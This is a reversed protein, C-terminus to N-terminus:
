NEGTQAAGCERLMESYYRNEIKEEGIGCRAFLSLIKERGASVATEDNFGSLIEIELFDGLPPVTCLEIHADEFHWGVVSKRKELFVRLGLDSFFAEVPASDLLECEKEDNVEIQIGDEGVRLEKQKYTFFIKKGRASKETRIRAQIKREGAMKGWYVDSKEVTDDYQAFSNLTEIVHARDDVHAKLEVEFM